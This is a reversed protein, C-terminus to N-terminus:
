SMFHSGVRPRDYPAAPYAVRGATGEFIKPLELDTLYNYGLM